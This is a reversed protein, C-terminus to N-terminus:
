MDCELRCYVSLVSPSSAVSCLASGYPSMGMVGDECRVQFRDPPNVWAM